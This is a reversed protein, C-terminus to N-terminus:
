WLPLHVNAAFHLRVKWVDESALNLPFHWVSHTRYPASPRLFLYVFSCEMCVTWLAGGVELTLLFERCLAKLDACALQEARILIVAVTANNIRHLLCEVLYNELPLLALDVAAGLLDLLFLLPKPKQVIVLEPLRNTYMSRLLEEFVPQSYNKVEFEAGCAALAPRLKPCIAAIIAKHGPLGRANSGSGESPFTFSVDAFETNGFFQSFDPSGLPTSSSSGSGSGRYGPMNGNGHQQHHSYHAAPARPDLEVSSGSSADSDFSRRRM